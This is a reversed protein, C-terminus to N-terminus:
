LTHRRDDFQNSIGGGGSSPIAQKKKVESVSGKTTFQHSSNPFQMSPYMDILSSHLTCFDKYKQSVHWTKENNFSVMIVYETYTRNDNPDDVIKCEVIELDLRMQFFHSRSFNNEVKSCSQIHQKFMEIPYIGRCFKCQSAM